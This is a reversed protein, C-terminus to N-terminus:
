QLPATRGRRSSRGPDASGPRGPTPALSASWLRVLLPLASRLGIPRQSPPWSRLADEGLAGAPRRLHHALLGCGPRADANQGVSRVGGEQEDLEILGPLGIVSQVGQDTLEAKSRGLLHVPCPFLQLSGDGPWATKILRSRSSVTLEAPLARAVAELGCRAAGLGGRGRALRPGCRDRDEVGLTAEKHEECDRGDRDIFGCLTVGRTACTTPAPATSVRVEFPLVGAGWQM